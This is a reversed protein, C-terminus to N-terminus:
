GLLLIYWRVVYYIMWVCICQYCLLCMGFLSMRFSSSFYFQLHLLFLFIVFITFAYNKKAVLRCQKSHQKNGSIMRLPQQELEEFNMVNLYSEYKTITHYCDRKRAIQNGDIKNVNVGNLLLIYVKDRFM